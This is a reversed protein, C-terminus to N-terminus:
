VTSSRGLVGSNHFVCMYIECCIFTIAMRVMVLEFVPVPPELQNLIKVTVNMFSIFVQSLM